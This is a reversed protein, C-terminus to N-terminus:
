RLSLVLSVLGVVVSALALLETGDPVATVSPGTPLRGVVFMALGVAAVGVLLTAGLHVFEVRRSRGPGVERALGVGFRGADWVVLSAAVGVVVLWTPAGVTGGFVTAIFLGVGALSSGATERSLLGVWVVAYGAALLGALVGLCLVVALLVATSEGFSDATTTTADQLRGEIEEPFRRVLEATAREFTWEAVALVGVTTVTGGALAGAAHPGPLVRTESLWRGLRGVLVAAAVSLGGLLVPVEFRAPVVAVVPTVLTGVVDAVPAVVADDATTETNGAILLFLFTTGIPIAAATVTTRMGEELGDGAAVNRRTLLLGFVALTCGVVVGVNGLIVLWGVSLLAEEEVPFIDEVLLVVAVLLGGSLALAAPTVLLGSGLGPLSRSRGRSLGLLLALLVSGLSGVATPGLMEPFERLLLAVAAVTVLVALAGAVRTADPRPHRDVRGPGHAV